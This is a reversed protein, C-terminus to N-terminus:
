TKKKQGYKKAKKKGETKRRKSSKTKGHKKKKIIGGSGDEVRKRKEVNKKEMAM